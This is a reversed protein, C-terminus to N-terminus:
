WRTQLADPLAVNNLIMSDSRDGCLGSGLPRGPFRAVSDGAAASAAPRDLSPLRRLAGPPHGGDAFFLTRSRRQIQDSSCDLSAPLARNPGVTLAGNCGDPGAKARSRTRDSGCGLSGAPRGVLSGAAPGRNGQRGRIANFRGVGWGAIQAKM